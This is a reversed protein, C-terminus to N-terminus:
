FIQSKRTPSDPLDRSIKQTLGTSTARHPSAGADFLTRITAEAVQEIGCEM